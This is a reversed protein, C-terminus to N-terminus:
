QGMGLAQRLARAVMPPTVRRRYEESAYLDGEPEFDSASAASAADIAAGDIASGVLVREAGALRVPTPGVGVGVLRAKTCTDGNAFELHVAIGVFASRSHPASVPFRIERLMEDPELGTTLDAIFFDEAAIARTGNPGKAILDAELAVAVGPLEAIRDAHALTGGITGRNRTAPPGLFPMTRAILPCCEAVLPSREVDIQRCMPGCVLHDGDRHLDTLGPCRGLDILADPRALRLNLLPVLSQGGALLRANGDYRVLAEIAANDSKPAVYEFRVPKM